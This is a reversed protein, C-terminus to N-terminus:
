SRGGAFALQERARKLDDLEAQLQRWRREFEESDTLSKPAKSVFTRILEVLDQVQNESVKQRFAPMHDGRGDLISVTLKVKTRRDQWRRNTFDPIEPTTARGDRGSGDSSHCSACRREYLARAAQLKEPPAGAPYRVEQPAARCFGAVGAGVGM